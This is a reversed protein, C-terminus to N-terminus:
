EGEEEEEEKSRQVIMMKYRGSFPSHVESVLRWVKKRHFPLKELQVARLVYEAVTSLALPPDRLRSAVEQIDLEQHYWLHYARLDSPRAVVPRSPSLSTTYHTLWTNASIVSPHLPKPTPSPLSPKSSSTGKTTGKAAKQAAPDGPLEKPHPEEIELNLFDRALEEISIPADPGTDLSSDEVSEPVGDNYTAVTRGNALRIPLDLEAHAPRPPM